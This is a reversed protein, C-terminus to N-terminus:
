QQQLYNLISLGIYDIQTASNALVVVSCNKEKIFGSFSSFGYTGGNHWTLENGFKTKSIFWALGLKQKDSFTIKHALKTADEKESMQYNLYNLMDEATSLIGGAAVFGNLNWHPTAMGDENYGDALNTLQEKTLNVGTANLKNPFCIKEKVLEEFTKNYVNELINGLLAMGLNSYDCVTGPETILTLTKLYDFLMTKSYSNYPNLSDFHPALSLNEPIRPLGSTHNALHKILIPSNRFSLSAYKRPLYNGIDDELNIKKELVAHALLTGCFTKTISGIEYQTNKDPLINSNRRIEGYNYFHTIGDKSIGISIGCNQPTEIFRPVVKQVISDLVTKNENDTKYSSNRTSFNVNTQAFLSSASLIIAYIIKKVTKM